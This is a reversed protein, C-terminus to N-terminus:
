ARLHDLSLFWHCQFTNLIDFMSLDMSETLARKKPL